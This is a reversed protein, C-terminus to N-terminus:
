QRIAGSRRWGTTAMRPVEGSRSQCRALCRLSACLQVFKTLSLIGSPFPGDFDNGNLYRRHPRHLPHAARMPRRAYLATMATLASIIAPVTGYM